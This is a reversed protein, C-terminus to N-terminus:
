RGWIFDFAAQKAQLESPYWVNLSTGDISASYSNNPKKLIVVNRNQGNGDEKSTNIYPNGKASVKWNLAVWRERRQSHPDNQINPKSPIVGKRNNQQFNSQVIPAKPL